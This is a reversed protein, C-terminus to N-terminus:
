SGPKCCTGGPIRTYETGLVFGIEKDVLISGPNEGYVVVRWMQHPVLATYLLGTNEDLAPAPIQKIGESGTIKQICLGLPEWQAAQFTSYFRGTAPNICRWAATDWLDDSETIERFEALGEPSNWKGTFLGMLEVGDAPMRGYVDYFDVVYPIAQACSFRTGNPRRLTGVIRLEASTLNDALIDRGNIIGLQDRSYPEILECGSYAESIQTEMYQDHLSQSIIEQETNAAETNVEAAWLWSLCVLAITVASVLVWAPRKIAVPDV